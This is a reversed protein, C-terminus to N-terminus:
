VLRREVPFRIVVQTGTNGTHDDLDIVNVEIKQLHQDYFLANISAVREETIAMGRSMRPIQGLQVKLQNLEQKYQLAVKRGVGNDTVTCVLADDKLDFYVSLMGMRKTKTFTDYRFGHEIANEVYPQIVMTPLTFQQPNIDPAISIQYHFTPNHQEDEFRLQQLGIYLELNEIEEALSIELRASSDLIRRALDSFMVIYKHPADWEQQFVKNRIANLANSVFHPKIQALRAELTLEQIRKNLSQLKERNKKKLYRQYQLFSFGILGLVIVVQLAIGWGSFLWHPHITWRLTLYPSYCGAQSDGRVLFRYDGPALNTLRYTRDFTSGRDITDHDGKIVLFDYRIKRGLSLGTFEIEIRNSDYPLDFNSKLAKRYDQDQVHLATFHMKPPRVCRASYQSLNVKNLGADTGVYLDDGQRLICFTENSLLGETYGFMFEMKPTKEKGIFSLRHVGCATAIWINGVADSYLANVSPIASSKMGNKENWHWGSNGRLYTIGRDLSAICLGGSADALLCRVEENLQPFQNRLAHCSDLTLNSFLETYLYRQQLQHYGAKKISENSLLQSKIRYIGTSKGVWLYDQYYQLAYTRDNTILYFSDRGPHWYTIGLQAGWAGSHDSALLMKKFSNYSVRQKLAPHNIPILGGDGYAYYQDNIKLIGLIRGELVTPVNAHFHNNEFPYILGHESGLVLKDKLLATNVNDHISFVKNKAPAHPEILYQNIAQAQKRLLWLGQGRTGIWINDEDDVRVANCFVPAILEQHDLRDARIRWLGASNAQYYNGKSDSAFHHEILLRTRNQNLLAVPKGRFHLSINSKHIHIYYGNKLKQNPYYRYFYFSTNTQRAPDFFAEKDTITYKATNTQINLQDGEEWVSVIFFQTYTQHTQHTELFRTWKHPCKPYGGAVYKNIGAFYIYGQADEYVPEVCPPVQALLPDEKETFFRELNLDYYFPRKSLSGFWIRGKSDEIINGLIENTPLGTEVGYNQFSYGDYRSLGTETGIWLYGKRDQHITYVTNGALGENRTFRIFPYGQGRLDVTAIIWLLLFFFWRTM